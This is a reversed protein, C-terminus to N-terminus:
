EPSYPHASISLANCSRPDNTRKQEGRVQCSQFCKDDPAEESRGIDDGQDNKVTHTEDARDMVMSHTTPQNHLQRPAGAGPQDAPNCCLASRLVTGLRDSALRKKWSRRWSASSIM